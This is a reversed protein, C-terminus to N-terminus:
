AMIKKEHITIAGRLPSTDHDYDKARIIRTAVRTLTDIVEPEERLAMFLVNINTIEVEKVTRLSMTRGAGSASKVATETKKAAAKAAAEAAKAAEEADIQASIDGREEAAKRAAEADALAKAAEEEAKRKAEAEAKAKEQSYAALKPKLLDIAKALKTLRPNYEDQVEKRAVDHPKVEAKRSADVKKWLGSLGSIQDAMQGAEIDNKIKDLTLWKQTADLFEAITRDFEALVQPDFAPPRNHGIGATENDLM